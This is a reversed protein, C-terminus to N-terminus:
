LLERGTASSSVVVVCEEAAKVEPFVWLITPGGRAGLSSLFLDLFLLLLLHCGDWVRRRSSLVDFMEGLALRPLSKLGQREGFSSRASSM